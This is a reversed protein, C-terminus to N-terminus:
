YKSLTSFRLGLPRINVQHIRGQMMEYCVPCDLKNLVDDTMRLKKEDIQPSTKNPLVGLKKLQIFIFESKSNARIGNAKALKQLESRHYSTHDM